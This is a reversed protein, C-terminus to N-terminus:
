HECGMYMRARLVFAHAANPKLITLLSDASKQTVFLGCVLAINKPTSNDSYSRYYELSMNQSPFRREFYEGRYIEDDATDSLVIKNEAVNYYREMTDIIWDYKKQLIFMEAQLKYYSKGTDAITLYEIAFQDKDIDPPMTPVKSSDAAAQISSAKSTDSVPKNGSANNKCSLVTATGILIVVTKCLFSNFGM